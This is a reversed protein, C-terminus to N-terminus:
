NEMVKYYEDERKRLDTVAIYLLFLGEIAKLLRLVLFPRMLIEELGIICLTIYVGNASAIGLSLGLAKRTSNKIGSKVLLMFDPDPSILIVYLQFRSVNSRQPILKNKEELLNEDWM